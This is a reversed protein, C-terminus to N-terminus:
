AATNKKAHVLNGGVDLGVGRGLAQRRAFFREEVESSHGMKETFADLWAVDEGCGLLTTDLTLKVSQSM